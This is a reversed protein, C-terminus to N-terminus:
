GGTNLVNPTGCWVPCPRVPGIPPDTALTKMEEISAPIKYDDANEGIVGVIIAKFCENEDYGLYIKLGQLEKGDQNLLAKISESSLYFGKTQKEGSTTKTFKNRFNKTWRVAEEWTIRSM